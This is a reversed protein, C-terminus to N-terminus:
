QPGSSDGGEGDNAQTEEGPESGDDDTEAGVTPDERGLQDLLDLQGESQAPPPRRRRRDLAQYRQTRGRPDSSEPSDALQLVADPRVGSRPLYAITVALEEPLHQCIGDVTRQLRSRAGTGFLVSPPCARETISRISMETDRRSMAAAVVAVVLPRVADAPSEHDVRLPRPLAAPLEQDDPLLSALPHPGAGGVALVIELGVRRSGAGLVAVPVSLALAALNAAISWRHQLLTAYVVGVRPPTAVSTTVAVQRVVDSTTLVAYKRAQEEDISRGSKAECVLLVGDSARALVVDVVVRGLRGIVPVEIGVARFGAAALLGTREDGPSALGLLANVPLLRQEM